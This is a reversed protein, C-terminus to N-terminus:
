EKEQRAGRQTLERDITKLLDAADFPKCMFDVAGGALAQRRVADDDHATIFMVAVSPRQRRIRRQLELGDIGPMRVDVIVCRAAYLEDSELFDRASAFTRCSHGASEMVNQLSQRVRRDDDVVVIHSTKEM